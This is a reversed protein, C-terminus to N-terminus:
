YPGMKFCELLSDVRAQTLTKALVGSLYYEEDKDSMNRKAGRNLLVQVVNRFGAMSAIFLPTWGEHGAKNPEAGKDLLLEVVETDGIRAAENLSSSKFTDEKNPDAGRDLLLKVM